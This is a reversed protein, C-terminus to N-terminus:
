RSPDGPLKRAFAFLVDGTTLATADAVLADQLAAEYRDRLSDQQEQSLGRVPAHAASRVNSEWAVSLDSSSLHIKGPIVTVEDFGASQLAKHCREESGLVASPDELALGFARACERFMRGPPPSDACMTSFGVIGRPKLLRHWERLALDASMYLLASSCLVADFTSGPLAPLNTADDQILEVSSLNAADLAFRLQALMGASVDVAVIHGAAGVRRAIEITAFGTGAGADLVRQGPELSALEVFRRAYDRHWEVTAYRAARQDFSAAITRLDDVM